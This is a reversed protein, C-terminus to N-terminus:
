RSFRASQVLEVMRRARDPDIANWTSGDVKLSTGVIAGDAVGLLQLVNDHNVGTNAIVPM